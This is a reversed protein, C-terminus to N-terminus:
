RLPPADLVERLKMALEEVAFPKPLIDVGPDLVGNHVIANRTYGTTYLVRLDPNRGRLTDALQRGSMGAMVVDTFLLDVRPLADFRNVAEEGSAAVHVTYGLERLAESSMLRVAEDDEVVLIVESQFAARPPDGETTSALADEAAAFTRPLYIKVTTGQGRESYIKVHGGSQKVFGYLMSLGLGTGKGVPKTTFFPDFVKSIAEPPIGTGVDSVAIMVYQGPAVGVERAAYREDLHANATEITLKGGDPMADRANVALNLIASELQNPDVHTLWLGGALVTELAIREGLTRRLLESMSAVLANLAVVSPSLPSQRSFALLRQTLTSARTAGERAHNLHREVGSGGRVLHRQAIDLNGIVIALMNNFDHAIGGTLHGIAEMKQSQRLAEQALALEGAAAKEATIHRGSAYVLDGEASAVWSIWRYSGDKHRIRSEYAPLGESIARDLAEASRPADDPHNLDLHHRGVVESESWGLIETWAPNAATLVGQADVVAILDQTNRWLRDRERTRAEVQLELTENFQQLADEAAVRETIDFGDVFIGVIEGSSSRIPQYVFDIYRLEVASKAGRQLSAPVRRGVYPDGTAFVNDLLEFFGQGEVEPLAERVAKGVVARHGILQTYADNALEFRHEPGRLVAMFSPAHQFLDRLFAREAELAENAERLARQADQLEREAKIRETIEVATVFIGGIGRPAAPDPVPSYGLTFHADEWRDQFRQIRLLTDDAFVAESAGSMIALHFPEIQPWVEAWAVSAPLGLAWPHKDGLIPRYADNYILAFEPGWRLAMPFGSALVIDVAMKLSQSWAERAGLPTASWDKADVLIRM